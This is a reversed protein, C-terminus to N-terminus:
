GMPTRAGEARTMLTALDVGLARALRDINILGLNRRGREVDSVYRPHIGAAEALREQSLGREMRLARVASGFAILVDATPPSAV